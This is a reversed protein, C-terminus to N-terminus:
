LSISVRHVGPQYKKKILSEVTKFHAENTLFDVDTIDVILIPFSLINRFYEFYSNQITQLYDETINQEYERGRSKILKQLESIGRHFYVIIDPQPFTSNFVNFIKNFMRYEEETLNKRSFLLSKIFAYDAVTFSTFLDQNVLHRQLQKQRETLFFLEVTFAFREPNKYFFPLFPNEEFDELIVKCGYQDGLKKCFSTKGSGINGEIVIYNYPFPNNEM